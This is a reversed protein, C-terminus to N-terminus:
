SSWHIIKKATMGVVVVLVEVVCEVVLLM